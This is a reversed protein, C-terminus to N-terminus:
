KREMYKSVKNQKNLNSLIIPNHQKILNLIENLFIGGSNQVVITKPNKSRVYHITRDEYFVVDRSQVIKKNTPDRLRFDLEDRPSSLYICEETKADLKEREYKPTHVFARCRFVRFQSYSAKKGYWVENSLEGNLPRSLSLNILDFAARVAEGWFSNPIKAHSLMNIFKEVTTRNMRETTENMKPTKLPTKEHRIGHAKYYAEFLGLYEGGNDSRICKM